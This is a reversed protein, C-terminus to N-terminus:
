TTSENARLLQGLLLFAVLALAAAAVMAPVASQWLGIVRSAVMVVVIHVGLVVWPRTSVLGTASPRCYPLILLLGLCAWGGIISAPRAVGGTAALWAVLGSIAFAGPAFLRAALPNFTAVAMPISVGLVARAMETEPVTAWIGFATIALMPGVLTQPLHRSWESLSAGAVLIMVVTLVQLELRDVLGGRLVVITAGGTVLLWGILRMGTGTRATVWGGVALVSIGAALGLRRAVALNIAVLAAVAVLVGWDAYRHRPETPILALAGLAVVGAVLGAIFEPRTLLDILTSLSEVM